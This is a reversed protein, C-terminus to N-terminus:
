MYGLSGIVLSEIVQQGPCEKTCCQHILALSVSFGTDHFSFDSSRGDLDM